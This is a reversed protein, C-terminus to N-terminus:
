KSDHVECMFIDRDTAQSDNNVTQPTYQPRPHSPRQNFNRATTYQDAHRGGKALLDAM